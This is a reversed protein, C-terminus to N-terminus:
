NEWHEAKTSELRLDKWYDMPDVKKPARMWARQKELCSEWHM